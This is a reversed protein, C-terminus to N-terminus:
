RRAAAAAAAMKNARVQSEKLVQYAEACETSYKSAAAADCTPM